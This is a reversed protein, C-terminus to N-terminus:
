LGDMEVGFCSFVPEEPPKQLSPTQLQAQVLASKLAVEDAVAPYLHFQTMVRAAQERARQELQKRQEREIDPLVLLWPAQWSQFDAILRQHAEDHSHGRLMLQPFSVSELVRGYLCAGLGTCALGIGRGAEDRRFWQAQPQSGSLGNIYAALYAAASGSRGLEDMLGSFFQECAAFGPRWVPSIDCAIEEESLVSHLLALPEDGADLLWLEYRDEFAFPVTQHSETLLQLLVDGSEELRRFERSPYIPGRKLGGRASWSGYRIDRLRLALPNAVYLDWHVGDVTVAEATEARLTHMSGRFPNLLRQAYREANM